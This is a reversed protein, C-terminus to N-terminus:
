FRDVVSKTILLLFLTSTKKFCVTTIQMMSHKSNMLM